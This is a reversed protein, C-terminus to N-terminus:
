VWRDGQSFLFSSPRSSPTWTPPMGEVESAGLLDMVFDSGALDSWGDDTLLSVSWGQAAESVGRRFALATVTTLSMTAPQPVTFGSRTFFRSRCLLLWSALQEGTTWSEVESTLTEDSFSLTPIPPPPSPPLDNLHVDPNACVAEM